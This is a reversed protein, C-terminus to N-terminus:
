RSAMQSEDPPLDVILRDASACRRNGGSTCLCGLATSEPTHRCQPRVRPQGETVWGRARDSSRSIQRSASGANRASTASGSNRSASAAMTPWRPVAARAPRPMAADHELRQDAQADEERVPGGGADGAQEAGTVPPRGEGLADVPDPEGDAQPDTMVRTPTAVVPGSTRRSPAPGSTASGAVVYRRIAKRPTVGSSTMSAVVPTRRPRCSVRVGSTTATAPLARLM